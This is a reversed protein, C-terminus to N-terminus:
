LVSGCCKKYKKPSGDPKKAGCPCPDNRGIKGSGLNVVINSNSIVPYNFNIKTKKLFEYYKYGIDKKIIDLMFEKSKAEIREDEKSYGLEKERSEIEKIKNKIKNLKEKSNEKKYFEKLTELIEKYDNFITRRRFELDFVKDKDRKEAVILAELLYKEEYKNNFSHFYMELAFQMDYPYKRKNEEYKKFLKEKSSSNNLYLNLADLAPHEIKQSLESVVTSVLINVGSDIERIFLLDNIFSVLNCIDGYYELKKKWKEVSKCNIEPLMSLIKGFYEIKKDIKFNGEVVEDLWISLIDGCFIYPCWREWLTFSAMWLFDEDKPDGKYDPRFHKKSLEDSFYFNKALKTFTEKDTKVGFKDLQKLIKEDSWKKRIGNFDWRNVPLTKDKLKKELSEFKGYEILSDMEGSEYRELQRKAFSYQPNLKLATKIAWLGEDDEGNMFHAVGKNAFVRFIDRPSIKKELLYELTKNFYKLAKEGNKENFYKLGKQYIDIWKGVEFVNTEFEPINNKENVYLEKAKELSSKDKLTKKPCLNCFNMLAPMIEDLAKKIDFANDPTNVLGLTLNIAFMPDDGQNYVWDKILKTGILKTMDYKKFLNDLEKEAEAINKKSNKEVLDSFNDKLEEEKKSSSDKDWLPRCDKLTLKKGKKKKFFDQSNSTFRVPINRLEGCVFEFHKDSVECIRGVLTSGVKIEFSASIENIWINNKTGFEKVLIKSGRVVDVVDFFGYTNKQLRLYLENEEKPLNLPNKDYFEMLPTKGNKLKFDFIFWENFDKEDVVTLKKLKKEFFDEGFFEHMSREIEDFYENNQFFYDTVRLITGTKLM